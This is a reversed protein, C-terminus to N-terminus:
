RFVVVIDCVCVIEIECVPYVCTTLTCKFGTFTSHATQNCDSHLRDDQFGSDPYPSSCDQEKTIKGINSINNM